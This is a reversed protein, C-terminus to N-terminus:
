FMVNLLVDAGQSDTVTPQSKSSVASSLSHITHAEVVTDVLLQRAAQQVQDHNLDGQILFSKAAEINTISQLRMSRCTGMVRAADRDIESPLPRIEIEWLM